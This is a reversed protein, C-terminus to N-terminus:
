KKSLERRFARFAAGIKASDRPARMMEDPIKGARVFLLGEPTGLHKEFQAIMHDSTPNRRDHEIDNLYQPSIGVSGDEKIIAAALDKQSIGKKKRAEVITQGLTLSQSTMAFADELSKPRERIPTHESAGRTL